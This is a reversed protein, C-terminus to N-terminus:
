YELEKNIQETHKMLHNLITLAEMYRKRKYFEDKTMGGFFAERFKSNCIPCTFIIKGNYDKINNM